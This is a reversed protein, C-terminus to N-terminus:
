DANLIEYLQLKSDASHLRFYFSQCTGHARMEAVLKVKDYFLRKMNKKERQIRNRAEKFGTDKTKEALLVVFRHDYNSSGLNLIQCSCIREAGASSKETESVSKKEFTLISVSDQLVHDLRNIQQHQFVSALVPRSSHTGALVSLAALSLLVLFAAFRILPHM